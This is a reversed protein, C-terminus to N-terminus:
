ILLTALHDKKTEKDTKDVGDYIRAATEYSQLILCGSSLQGAVM